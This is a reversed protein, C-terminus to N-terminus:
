QVVFLQVPDVWKKWDFASDVPTIEVIKLQRGPKDPMPGKLERIAERGTKKVEVGDYVYTVM